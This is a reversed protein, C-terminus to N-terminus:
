KIIDATVGFHMQTLINVYDTNYEAPKVSLRLKFSEKKAYPALDVDMPTLTLTQGATSPIDHAFAIETEQLGDAEIYIDIDKLFKFTKGPPSQIVMTMDNLKMERIKDKNTNNNSFDGSWDETIGPTLIPILDLTSNPPVQLQVESYLTFSVTGPESKKCSNTLIILALLFSIKLIKM